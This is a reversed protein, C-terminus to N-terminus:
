EVVVKEVWNQRESTIMVFYIGKEFQHIDLKTHYETITGSYLRQGHINTIQVMQGELVPVVINLEERAPNPYILIDNNSISPYGTAAIKLEKIASLGNTHFLGDHQPLSPEWTISLGTEEKSEPHYIRLSIADNEMFGDKEETLPDDGFLTIVANQMELPLIGFCNGSVDFAGLFDGTEVTTNAFLYAPIAVSHTMATAKSLKWTVMGLLNKGYADRQSLGTLDRKIVGMKLGDCTPYTIAGGSGMLVFYANGPELYELTNIGYAPWYVRYGAVEKVITLNKGAFLSAVNANCESIVPIISWGEPLNLSKNDTESGMIKLECGDNVKIEYGSTNNWTGLTNVNEAPFYFGSFNELIILKNLIPNFLNEVNANFPILYSSIGSWGPTISIRHGIFSFNSLSNEYINTFQYAIPDTSTISQKYQGGNMLNQDFSIGCTQNTDAIKIQFRLLGTYTVPVENFYVASGNHNMEETAEIIVAYKSSTNDAQNVILYHDAMLSLNSLTVKGNTLINSGFATTKYDFYIQLDRFFTGTENARVEVDFQFIPPNGTIVSPNSFRFSLQTQAFMFSNLLMITMLIACSKKM